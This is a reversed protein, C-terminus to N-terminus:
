RASYGTEFVLEEHYTQDGELYPRDLVLTFRVFRDQLVGNNGRVDIPKMIFPPPATPNPPFTTFNPHWFEHCSRFTTLEWQVVNNAVIDPRRILSRPNSALVPLARDWIINPSGPITEDSPGRFHHEWTIHHNKLNIEISFERRKIPGTGSKERKWVIRPDEGAAIVVRFTEKHAEQGWITLDTPPLSLGLPDFGDNGMEHPYIEIDGNENFDFLDMLTPIGVIPSGPDPMIPEGSNLTANYNFVGPSSSGTGDERKLAPFVPRGADDLAGEYGNYIQWNTDIGVDLPRPELDLDDKYIVYRLLKGSVVGPTGEMINVYFVIGQWDPAGFRPGALFRRFRGQRDYATLMKVLKIPVNSAVLPAGDSPCRTERGPWVRGVVSMKEVTTDLLNTGSCVYQMGSNVNPLRYEDDDTVTTTRGARFYWQCNPKGAGDVSSCKKFNEGFSERVVAEDPFEDLRNWTRIVGATLDVDRQTPDISRFLTAKLDRELMIKANKAEKSLIAKRIQMRESRQAVTITRLIALFLVSLISISVMMELLTFKKLLTSRM